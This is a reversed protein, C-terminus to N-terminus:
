TPSTMLVLIGVARGLRVKIIGPEGGGWEDVEDEESESGSGWGKAKGKGGAKRREEKNAKIALLEAEREQRCSGCYPIQSAM